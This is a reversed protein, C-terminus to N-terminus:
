EDIDPTQKDALGFEPLACVGFRNNPQAPAKLSVLVIGYPMEIERGGYAPRRSSFSELYGRHFSGRASACTWKGVFLPALAYVAQPGLRAVARFRQAIARPPLPPACRYPEVRPPITPLTHTM